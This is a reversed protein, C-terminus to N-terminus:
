SEGIEEMRHISLPQPMRVGGTTSHNYVVFEMGEKQVEEETYPRPRVIDCFEEGRAYAIAMDSALHEVGTDPDISKSKQLERMPGFAVTPFVGAIRKKFTDGSFTSGAFRSNLMNDVSTAIRVDSIKFADNADEETGHIMLRLDTVIQDLSKDEWHTSGSGNDAAISVNISEHNVFGKLGLDARGWLVTLHLRMDHGRRCANAQKVNLSHGARKARVIDNVSWGYKMMMQKVRGSNEAGQITPEPASRAAYDSLFAAIGRSDFTYYIFFEAGDEVDTAFPLLEGTAAILDPHHVEFLRTSISELQRAFWPLIDADVYGAAVGPTGRRSDYRQLAGDERDLRTLTKIIENLKM